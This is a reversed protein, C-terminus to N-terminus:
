KRAHIRFVTPNAQSTQGSKLLDLNHDMGLIVEKKQELKFKSTLEDLVKIFHSTESNPPRYLSGVM